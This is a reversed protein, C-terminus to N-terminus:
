TANLFVESDLCNWKCNTALIFAVAGTGWYGNRSNQSIYRGIGYYLALQERNVLKVAQYQSQLIAVKITQVAISYKAELSKNTRMIIKNVDM